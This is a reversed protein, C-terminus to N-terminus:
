EKEDKKAAVWTEEPPRKKHYENADQFAKALTLLDTEGYLKGTFTVATPTGTKSFGNPMCITPHGTLNTIQLDNGGIYADVKEFVKAMQGMLITRARQARLYDVASIFRARRFTGGWTGIGENVGARTIDDFATGSEVDLILGVVTGAIAQPLTIPVLQVGLDKLIKMSGEPTGEFHGVRLEKLPRTGPWNFPRDVTSPDKPDAGHIAGFVLACDEVCRAMPGLKDLSWCLTMCGARSIRGFTPRLGTVGCRTSPSVISGLTESGIGFPVLGAAVSCATGASSGSSGQKINWPNRTMGGFWQDGQALAGLTSKAVLVAGATELRSAVTAKADITQDKFHGSGWTTKYGPYAILDKAVWPIGHLAGRYKGAAIDKDAEAAQKLAVEETLSVVCLLAPDYKKLRALCVKTLDTSSLKKTRILEAQQGLSLFALDADSEPKKVEEKPKIAQVQGRPDTRQAQWPTPNFHMAPQVDYGIDIKRLAAFQGQVFNMRAAVVKRQDDTLTIGAVWEANKVMEPTIAEGKPQATLAEAAIARHFTATGIGLAAAAAL